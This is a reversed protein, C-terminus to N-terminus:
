FWINKKGEQGTKIELLYSYLFGKYLRTNEYFCRLSDFEEFVRSSNKEVKNKHRLDRDM